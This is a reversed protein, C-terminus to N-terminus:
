ECKNRYIRSVREFLKVNFYKDRVIGRSVILTKKNKKEKKFADISLLKDM